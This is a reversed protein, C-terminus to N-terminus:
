RTKVVLHLDQFTASAYPHVSWGDVWGQVVGIEETNDIFAVDNIFAFPVDTM